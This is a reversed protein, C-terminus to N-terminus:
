RTTWRTFATLHQQSATLLHQYVQTADPASLGDLAATLDGIDAREVQQGVGLAAAQGTRGQSLLKDYTAQVTRDSFQGIPEGATPDTIGYRQLLTRVATLHQNEATAVHDFVAAPYTDAFTAYLDHALKEEQAMAALTAKQADSLTGQAATVALGACRGDGAMAGSGVRMGNGMGTSTSM